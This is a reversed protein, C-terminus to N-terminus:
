EILGRKKATEKSYVVYSEGTEPDEVSMFPLGHEEVIKQTEDLLKNLKESWEEMDRLNAQSEQSETITLRSFFVYRNKQFLQRM